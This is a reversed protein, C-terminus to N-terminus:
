GGRGTATTSSCPAATSHAGQGVQLPAILLANARRNIQQGLIGTRGVTNRELSFSPDAPHTPPIVADHLRQEIPHQHHRHDANTMPALDAASEARILVWGAPDVTRMALTRRDQIKAAASVGALELDAQAQHLWDASRNMLGNHGGQSQRGPQQDGPEPGPSIVM